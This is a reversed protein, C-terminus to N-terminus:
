GGLFGAVADRLFLRDQANDEPSGAGHGDISPIPLLRGRRLHALEAANDAVRFYLDTEGPMLLVEAEIAALAQALDHGYLENASIDSAEWTRAQAYLDAARCSTFGPEWEEDLFAELSGATRLHRGERYWDQSKAWGAYIRAFARVAARPEDAFRGGGVHEPAAELTALLGQLFVRNHVSTRASGCVVVARAVRSPYLAAWHYAQQAGMSFGYAAAIREIGFREALLRKQARVNDTATVLGPYDARNSPSTSVGNAFMDPMVVFWRSADLIGADGALWAQDDHTASYSTPVVVANDRAANLTGFSKWGIRADALTEGSQLALDGLAHVGDEIPVASM